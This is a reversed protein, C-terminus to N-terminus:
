SGWPSSCASPRPTRLRRAAATRRRGGFITISRRGRICARAAAEMNNGRLGHAFLLTGFTYLMLLGGRRVVWGAMRRGFAFVYLFALSGFVPDWFRLGFDDDPLLGLRIPLAVIWFKLPPKELFVRRADAVLRPNMWDGTEVISEAAYSYIAEDNEQDVSASGASCRARLVGARRHPPRSIRALLRM